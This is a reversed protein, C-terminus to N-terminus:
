LQKSYDVSDAKVGVLKKTRQLKELTRVVLYENLQWRFKHSISNLMRRKLIDGIKMRGPFSVWLRFGPTKPHTVKSM